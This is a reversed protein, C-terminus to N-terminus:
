GRDTESVDRRAESTELLPPLPDTSEEHEEGIAELARLHEEV